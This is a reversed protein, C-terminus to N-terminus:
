GRQTWFEDTRRREDMMTAPNRLRDPDVSPAQELEAQTRDVVITNMGPTARLEDWPVAYYDEGIGLFGGRAVILHSPTGSQPDIVVDNVSGLNQDQMNRVDTGTIDDVRYTANGRADLPEALALQEQRWTTVSAPDVGADRLEKSYSDYIENMKAVIYECGENDGRHLLVRGAGYLARIQYRPTDIGIVEGRPDQMMGSPAATDGTTAPSSAPSRTAQPGPPTGYGGVGWGTLWFDDENMRAAFDNIETLCSAALEPKGESSTQAAAGTATLAILGTAIATTTLTRVLM